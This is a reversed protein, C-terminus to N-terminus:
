NKVIWDITSTDAGNATGGGAATIATIQFSGPAGNVRDAVLAAYKVTLADGVPANQSVVISTNVGNIIAPIAATKGTGPAIATTGKQIIGSPIITPAGAQAAYIVFPPIPDGSGVVVATGAPAVLQNVDIGSSGNILIQLFSAAAVQVANTGGDLSSIFASDSLTIAGNLSAVRIFANAAGALVSQYIAAYGDLTFEKAELGAASITIVNTTSQNVIQIGVLGTLGHITVAANAITVFQAFYATTKGAAALQVPGSVGTPRLDWAGAPIVAAGGDMDVGITVAGNIKAVAAVVEAWTGYVNGVSVAGPRWLVTSAFTLAAGGGSALYLLAELRQLRGEHNNRETM